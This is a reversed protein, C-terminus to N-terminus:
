CQIMKDALICNEKPISETVKVYITICPDFASLSSAIWPMLQFLIDQGVLVDIFLLYGSPLFNSVFFYLNGLFISCLM